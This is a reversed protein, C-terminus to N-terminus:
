SPSKDSSKSAGPRAVSDRMSMGFISTFLELVSALFGKFQVNQMIEKRVEDKPPEEQPLFQQFSNEM